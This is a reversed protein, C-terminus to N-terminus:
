LGDKWDFQKTGSASTGSNITAATSEGNNSQLWALVFIRIFALGNSSM